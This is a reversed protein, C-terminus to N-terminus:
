KSICLVKFGFEHFMDNEDDSRHKKACQEITLVYSQVQKNKADDSKQEEKEM